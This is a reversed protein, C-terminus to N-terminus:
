QLIEERRLFLHSEVTKHLFAHAVYDFVGLCAFGIQAELNHVAVKLDVNCVIPLTEDSIRHSILVATAPKSQRPQPLAHTYQTASM